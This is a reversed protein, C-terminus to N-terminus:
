YPRWVSKAASKSSVPTPSASTAPSSSGESKTTEDLSLSSPTVHHFASKGNPTVGKPGDAEEKAEPPQGSPLGNSKPPQQMQQQQQHLGQLSHILSSLPHPMHPPRLLAPNINLNLNFNSGATSTSMPSAPLPGGGGMPPPHGAMAPYALGTPPYPLAPHAGVSSGMSTPPWTLDPRDAM